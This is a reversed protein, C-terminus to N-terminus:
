TNLFVSDLTKFHNIGSMRFTSKKRLWCKVKSLKACSFPCFFFGLCAGLNPFISLFRLFIFWFWSNKTIWTFIYFNACLSSFKAGDCLPSITVNLFEPQNLCMRHLQKLVGGYTSYSNKDVLPGTNFFLLQDFCIFFSKFLM